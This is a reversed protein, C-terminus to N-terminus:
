LEGLQNLLTHADFSLDSVQDLNSPNVKAVKRLLDVIIKKEETLQKFYVVLDLVEQYADISADRGNFSQLRTGYKREGNHDRENIDKIVLDWMYENDNTKPDKQPVVVSKNNSEKNNM